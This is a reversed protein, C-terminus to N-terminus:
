IKPKKLQPVSSRFGSLESFYSETGGRQADSTKQTQQQSPNVLEIGQIPTFALSSSLGSTALGSAAGYHRHLGHKKAAKASLKQRQQAAVARLMGSGEKGIAGLGIAEDGDIFEDEAQNFLMRNAQKKLETMGYKEKMKRYRRGGRRTKKREGADPVPLVEGKKAPPPEQWKEIKRLIDERMARGVNGEPDKGHADVRALLACKSGVLKAAKAKLSPPTQQVLDCDYVFGQHPQASKSSFGSLHKRKAGLVQINCAPISALAELGGAVGMLRAAIESGVAASLNPALRDMSRQVLKLIATKDDDLQKMIDCTSMVTALTGEDLPEGSTTTATVTVVMVTAAPLISDLDVQTVDMTNGITKVVAAYELPAHVLSELEPFKSKYLGRLFNYVEVIDNDIDVVLQNCEVLFRCMSGYVHM